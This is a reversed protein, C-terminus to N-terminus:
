YSLFEIIIKRITYLNKSHLGHGPQNLFHEPFYLFLLCLFLVYNVFYHKTFIYVIFFKRLYLLLLSTIIVTLNEDDSNSLKLLILKLQSVLLYEMAYFEIFFNIEVQIYSNPALQNCKLWLVSADLSTTPFGTKLLEEQHISGM